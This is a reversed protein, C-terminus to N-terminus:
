GVETTRPTRTMRAAVMCLDDALRGGTFESVERQMFELLSAPSSGRQEGVLRGIREEGFLELGSGAGNAQRRAETLGDTYLLLGEGNRLNASFSRCGLEDAIGLPLGAAGDDGLASGNDLRVPQDHGALAWEIRGDPHVLTCAVTVFPDGFGSDEVLATNARELMTAPDDSYEASSSILTRVYWARKAANLGRGAVDGVALLTANAPAEAVIFFDGSVGHEAPLYCTALDLAPREPPESPALAQQITRLEELQLNRARLERTLSLRSDSLVGLLYGGLGYVGLRILTAIVLPGGGEDGNIERTLAYLLGCVLGAGLGWWRGLWLGALLVPVLYLPGPEAVVVRMASIAVILVLVIAIATRRDDFPTL